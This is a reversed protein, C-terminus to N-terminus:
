GVEALSCLRPAADAGTADLVLMRERRVVLVRGALIDAAFAELGPDDAAPDLAQALRRADDLDAVFAIESRSIAMLHTPPNSTPREHM